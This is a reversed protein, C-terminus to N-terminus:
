NKLRISPDPEEVGQMLQQQEDLDMEPPAQKFGKTLFTLYIFGLILWGVGLKIATSDLQTLLYADVAVGLAPLIVWNLSNYKEGSNRRSLYWAIVAVNVFTFATFAGFNIFSTSTTVDLFLAIFGVAGLALLSVVPTRYRPLLFAFVRKPLVGDRGMAYILRAGSAQSALTATWQALIITGVVLAQFFAGSIQETIQTAATGSNEFVGGPHVLQAAFSTILFIAAAVVATIVIARPITKTPNVAEETFTSLGDFGIFSYVAIAAGSSVAALTTTDNWIPELTIGSAGTHKFCLIVFVVIVALQWGMLLLNVKSALRVGLVNIVTVSVIFGTLFVWRPVGPFQDELYAAGILWAVMPIFFYDLLIAWGVLFGIRSDMTRRVYTYASGAIPFVRAMKAYSLATLLMAVFALAYSTTITGASAESVIGFITIVIIPTIYALGFLVIPWLTLARDLRQSDTSM